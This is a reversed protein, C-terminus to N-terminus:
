RSQGFGSEGYAFKDGLKAGFESPDKEAASIFLDHARKVNLEITTGKFHMEALAWMAPASGQLAQKKILVESLEEFKDSAAMDLAGLGFNDSRLSRELLLVGISKLSQDPQTFLLKQAFRVTWKPDSGNNSKGWLVPDFSQLQVSASNIERDSRWNMLAPWWWFSTVVAILGIIVIIFAIAKVFKGANSTPVANNTIFIATKPKAPLYEQREAFIAEIARHADDSLDDNRARLQLLYASTLDSFQVKFDNM